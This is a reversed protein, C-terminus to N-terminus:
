NYETNLVITISNMRRIKFTGEWHRYDKISNHINIYHLPLEFETFNRLNFFLIKSKNKFNITRKYLLLLGFEYVVISYKFFYSQKSLLREKQRGVFDKLEGSVFGM